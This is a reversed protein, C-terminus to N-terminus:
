HVTRLKWCYCSIGAKLTPLREMCLNLKVSLKITIWITCVSCVDAFMRWVCVHVWLTEVFKNLLHQYILFHCEVIRTAPSGVVLMVVNHIAFKIKQLVRKYSMNRFQLYTYQGCSSIGDNPKLPSKTLELYGNLKHKHWTCQRNNKFTGNGWVDNTYFVFRSKPFILEIDSGASTANASIRSGIM